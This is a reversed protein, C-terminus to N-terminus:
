TTWLSKRAPRWASRRPEQRVRERDVPGEVPPGQGITGQRAVEVAGRVLARVLTVAAWISAPPVAARIPSVQDTADLPTAPLRKM